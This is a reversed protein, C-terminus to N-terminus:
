FISKNYDEPFKGDIDKYFDQIITMDHNFDGTIDVIKGVGAIKNTYDLFGLGVPVKATKAIYYFGTKWKEVWKRSGEAPIMLILKEQTNFLNVAYDVLNNVKSRDVGIGGLWRFFYGHLGKTYVNKILFKSEVGAKWYVALAYILDWNSTHPAALMVCKDVKFKEPYTFKWGFIFLTFKGILKKM